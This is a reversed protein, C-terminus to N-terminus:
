SHNSIFEAILTLAKSLINKETAFSIRIHGPGHFFTGPIVAVKQADLLAESFAVDDKFGCNELAQTVNPFTYFAGQSAKSTIGPIESLMDHALLSHKHYTDTMDSSRADWNDLAEISAFQAVSNACSTSQSQITTMAKIIHQPAAAYGMRWGTMAYSKSLGNILVYRDRLEPCLMLLNNFGDKSWQIDEYIEDSIVVVDPYKKLVEGIATLTKKSYVMGTPNSPTNLMLVRTKKSLAKDLKEPDIAFDNEMECPLFTTKGGVLNIMQMYSLWCPTPVLVEDGPNVLAFLANFISQKAGTSILIENPQYELNNQTQFKKCVAERLAFVGNVATYKTCGNHIAEIAAAKVHPPTDFEYGPEGVSLNFVKHGQQKLKAAKGSIIFAQSPQVKDLRKALQVM